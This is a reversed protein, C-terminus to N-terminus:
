NKTLVVAIWIWAGATSVSINTVEKDSVFENIESELKEFSREKFFTAKM